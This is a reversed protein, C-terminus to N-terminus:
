DRKTIGPASEVKCLRRKLAEGDVYAENVGGCEVQTTQESHKGSETWVEFTRNSETTDSEVDEDHSDIVICWDRTNASETRDEPVSTVENRSGRHSRPELPNMVDNVRYGVGILHTSDESLRQAETSRNSQLGNECVFEVVEIENARGSLDNRRTGVIRIYRGFIL